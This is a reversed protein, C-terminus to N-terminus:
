SVSVFVGHFKKEIASIPLIRTRCIRQAGWLSMEVKQQPYTVSLGVSVGRCAHASARDFTLYSVASLPM